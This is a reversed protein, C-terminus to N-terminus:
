HDNDAESVEPSAEVPPPPADAQGPLFRALIAQDEALLQDVNIKTDPSEAYRDVLSLLLKVAKPDSRVADNVLRRLMIELAAIRRTKGNETVAIKHQIVDRLVAGISRSGRPRGRPNGSMGPQFRTEMPPRGYGVANDASASSNSPKHM